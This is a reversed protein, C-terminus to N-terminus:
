ALTRILSRVEWLKGDSSVLLRQMNFLCHLVLQVLYLHSGQWNYGIFTCHSVKGQFCIILKCYCITFQQLCWGSLFVGINMLYLFWLFWQDSISAFWGSYLEACRRSRDVNDQSRKLTSYVAQKIKLRMDIPLRDTVNKM